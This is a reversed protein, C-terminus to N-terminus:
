GSSGTDEGADGRGGQESAALRSASQGDSRRRPWRGNLLVGRYEPKYATASRKWGGDRRGHLAGRTSRGFDVDYLRTWVEEDVGDRVGDREHPISHLVVRRDQM